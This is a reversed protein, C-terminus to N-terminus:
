SEEVKTLWGELFSFGEGHMINYLIINDDGFPRAIIVDNVIAETGDFKDMEKVWGPYTYDNTNYPRKVKVKDGINFKNKM